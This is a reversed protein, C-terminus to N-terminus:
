EGVKTWITSHVFEPDLFFTLRLNSLWNILNRFLCLLTCCNVHLLEPLLISISGQHDLNIDVKSFRSPTPIPYIWPQASTLHGNPWRQLNSSSADCILCNLHSFPWKFLPPPLEKIYPWLAQARSWKLVCSALQFIPIWLPRQAKDFQLFKFEFFNATKRCHVKSM